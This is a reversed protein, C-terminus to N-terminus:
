HPFQFFVAILTISLWNQKSLQNCFLIFKVSEPQDYFEILDKNVEIENGSVDTKGELPINLINYNAGTLKELDALRMTNHRGISAYHLRMRRQMNKVKIFDVGGKAGKATFRLARGLAGMGRGYLEIIQVLNSLEESM